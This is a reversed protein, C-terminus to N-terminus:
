RRALGMSGNGTNLEGSMEGVFREGSRQTRRAEANLEGSTRGKLKLSEVKLRRESVAIEKVIRV